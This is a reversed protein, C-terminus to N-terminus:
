ESSAGFLSRGFIEKFKAYFEEFNRNYNNESPAETTRRCHRHRHRHGRKHRRRSCDWSRKKPPIIKKRIPPPETTSKPANEDDCCYANATFIQELQHTVPVSLIRRDLGLNNCGCNSNRTYDYSCLPCTENLNECCKGIYGACPVRKRKCVIRNLILTDSKSCSCEVVNKYKLIDSGTCSSCIYNSTQCSILQIANFTLLFKFLKM